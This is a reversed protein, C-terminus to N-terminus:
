GPRRRLLLQDAAGFGHRRYLPRSAATPHLVVREYHREDAHRLIASLLASGHGRNRVDALVFLNGLYGWRGAPQAPRPMREYEVLNGTGVATGDLEVLWFTRRASEQDFWARFRAPFSPDEHTGTEDTWVQRLRTLADLDELTAVRVASLAPM